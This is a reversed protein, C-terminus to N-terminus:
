GHIPTRGADEVNAGQECPAMDGVQDACKRRDGAAMRLRTELNGAVIARVRMFVRALGDHRFADLTVNSPVRVDRVRGKALQVRVCVGEPKQRLVFPKAERRELREAGANRGDQEICWDGTFAAPIGRQVDRRVVERRCRAREFLEQEVFARARRQELRRGGHERSVIPRAGGAWEWSVITTSM